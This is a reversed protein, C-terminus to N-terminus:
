RPRGASRSATISSQQGRHLRGRDEAVAAVRDFREDVRQDGAVGTGPCVSTSVTTDVEVLRSPEPGDVTGTRCGSPVQLDAGRDGELVRRGSPLSMM